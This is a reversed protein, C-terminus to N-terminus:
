SNYLVLYNLNNDKAIKQKLPDSETWVKIATKYYDSYESREMWKELLKQDEKDDKNYPHPGHTWSYNCEIYLDESKIYFDCAFPYLNSKYQRIIDDEAHISLLYEYYLDEPKSTNFTGNKRKTNNIKDIIIQYEELSRNKLLEQYKFSKTFHEVGYRELCTQKIKEKVEKAQVTHEVGYKELCTQKSKEKASEIQSTWEVGYKELCTQKTKERVKEAQLSSEVGFHKLCTQKYKEKFQEFKLPSDVGYRELCTQKIKERVEKSKNPSDVGYKELCTQKYKEKVFKLKRPHAVGYKKLCTAESREKAIIRNEEKSRIEINNELLIKEIIRKSTHLQEAIKYIPQKNLYLQIIKEIDKDTFKTKSM